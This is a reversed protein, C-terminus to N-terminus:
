KGTNWYKSYNNNWFQATKRGYLFADQWKVRANLAEYIHLYSAGNADKVTYIDSNAAFSFRGSSNVFIPNDSIPRVIDCEQSM